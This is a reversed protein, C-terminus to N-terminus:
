CARISSWRARSRSGSSRAALCTRPMRRSCPTSAVRCGSSSNTPGPRAAGRSWRRSPRARAERRRHERAGHRPVPFQGAAGRRHEPASAVLDIERIDIGDVRMLGQQVPYLGPDAADDDDQRLRQPRRHRLHQRAPISFSVDDLAPAGEAMASPSMRSSSRAPSTRGCAPRAGDREPQQNMVEGLMRVSLAVEQYEHVMTVIQVLPGSVRGALMNFAVLAGIDDRRQLRRARRPRHDRREDAKRSIRHAGPGRGLDERRRLADDGDARPRTTGSAGQLPEMALSKVTRMGHVTEVLLAQRAGEAEYLAHLRRRFPGILLASWM